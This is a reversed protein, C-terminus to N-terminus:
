AMRRVRSAMGVAAFGGILLMWSAPEPVADTVTLSVREGSAHADHVYAGTTRDFTQLSFSLYADESTAAFDADISAPLSM